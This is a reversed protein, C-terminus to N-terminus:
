TMIHICPMCHLIRAIKVKMSKCWTEDGRGKNLYRDLEAFALEGIGFESVVEQLLQSLYKRM